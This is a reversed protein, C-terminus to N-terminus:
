TVHLRSFLPVTLKNQKEEEEEKKSTNKLVRQSETTRETGDKGEVDCSEKASEIM